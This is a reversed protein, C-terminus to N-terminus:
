PLASDGKGLPRQMLVSDVWRGFKFGVAEFNGVMRFGLARHLGISAANGSDGIVAIMQRWPGEECREILKALLARGVGQGALGDRVYVSDELTYRYASRTRYLTAYCYGLVHDGEVMVFYPLGQGRVARMRSLMEQADPPVEEFSALGTRVHHAYIQTVQTVDEERAERIAREM